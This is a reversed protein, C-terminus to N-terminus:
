LADDEIDPAEVHGVYNDKPDPFMERIFDRVCLPVVRRNGFGLHGHEAFIYARYLEYRAAAPSINPAFGAAVNRLMTAYAGRHCSDSNCHNCSMATPPSSPPSPLLHSFSIHCM